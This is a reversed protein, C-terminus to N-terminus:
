KKILYNRIPLIEISCASQDMAMDYTSILKHCIMVSFKGGCDLM